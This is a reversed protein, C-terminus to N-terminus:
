DVVFSYKYESFVTLTCFVWDYENKSWKYTRGVKCSIAGVEADDANLLLENHPPSKKWLDLIREAIANESMNSSCIVACNEGSYTWFIDYYDLRSTPRPTITNEDHGMKGTRAQYNSHHEAPKFARGSWEWKKLGNQERYENCKNFLLYDLSTQSFTTLNILIILTTTLIKKM